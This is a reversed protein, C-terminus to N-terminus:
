RLRAPVPEAELWGPIMATQVAFRHRERAPVRAWAHRARALDVHEGRRARLAAATLCRAPDPAGDLAVLDAETLKDARFFLLFSAAPESTAPDGLLALALEDAPRTLVERAGREALIPLLAASDYREAGAPSAVGRRIAELADLGALWALWEPEVALIQAEDLAHVAAARERLSGPPAREALFHFLAQSQHYRQARATDSLEDGRQWRVLEAVAGAVASNRAELFAPTFARARLEPGDERMSEIESALGENFWTRQGLGAGRAHLHALEHRLAARGFEARVAAATPTGAAVYVFAFGSEFAGGAFGDHSASEWPDSAGDEEPVPVLHIRVAAPAAIDLVRLVRETEERLITAYVSTTAADYPSFLTFGEERVVTVASRQLEAELEAASPPPLARCACALLAGLLAASARLRGRAQEAGPDWAV